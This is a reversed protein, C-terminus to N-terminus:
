TSRTGWEGSYGLTAFLKDGARALGQGARGWTRLRRVLLSFGVFAYSGLLVLTMINSYLLEPILSARLLWDWADKEKYWRM